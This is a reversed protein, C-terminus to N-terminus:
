IKDTESDGNEKNFEEKILEEESIDDEFEFKILVKEGNSAEVEISFVEGNKRRNVVVLPGKKNKDAIHYEAMDTSDDSQLKPVVIVDDFNTIDSESEFYSDSLNDIEEPDLLQKGSEKRSSSLDDGFPNDLFESM